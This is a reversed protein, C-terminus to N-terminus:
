RRNGDDEYLGSMFREFDDASPQAAEAAEEAQQERQKELKESAGQLQAQIRRTLEQQRAMGVYTYESTMQVQSHGAIKSAEIATAGVEQRWTINARRFTHPGLGKFDLGVAAAALHLEKRVGSDWMPRAPQDPQAFIWSEPTPCHTAVWDRLRDNLDGLALKRRSHRTKTDDINTHWARQEIRIVGQMPDYHKRQLGLAESIRTGTAACVQVILRHPDRMGVLVAAAEDFSFVRLNYKNTKEGINVKVIPNRKGEEWLGWDEARHYICSALQKLGLRSWYCDFTDLVWEQFDLTTIENLRKKGWKPKLHGDILWTHYARTPAAIQHKEILRDKGNPGVVTTKVKRGLHLEKYKDCVVGFLAIGQGVAQEVTPVNIKALFLDREYEAQKPSIKDKGRSPAIDHRKRVARVSGDPQVEDAWYRFSWWLGERGHQREHIKPHQVRTKLAVGGTLARLTADDRQM